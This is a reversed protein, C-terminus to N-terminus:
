SIVARDTVRRWSTGDYFVPVAGGSENTCFASSGVSAVIAQLQAVTRNYFKMPKNNIIETVPNLTITTPSTITYTGVLTSPASITNTEIETVKLVQTTANYTIGANTKGGLAGTPGDYLGVYAGAGTTSAVTVTGAGTPGQAGTAGVAGTAGTAGTPGTVSPGTAGTVGIPGGYTWEQNLDNWIYLTTGGILYADGINGYPTDGQLANLTLYNGLIRVSYGFPGTPGTIGQVGRAGTPGTPGIPAATAITNFTLGTFLKVTNDVSSVWIDGVQPSGPQNAQYLVNTRGAQDYAVSASFTANANDSRVYIIDGVNLAFRFTEFSQGVGVVLNSVIYARTSENGIQDVPEIYVSSILDIGGKNTIIVSAIGAVDSAAIPTDINAVPAAVGLRKVPV